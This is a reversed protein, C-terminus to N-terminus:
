PRVNCRQQVGQNGVGMGPKETNQLFMYVDIATFRHTGGMVSKGLFYITMESSFSHM